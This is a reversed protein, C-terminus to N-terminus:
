RGYVVISGVNFTGVGSTTVRIANLATTTPIVVVDTSVGSIDVVKSRTTNFNKIVAWITRGSTTASGYLPLYTQNTELGGNITLYDGTTTLFTSGNDTSVLLGRTTSNTTGLGRLFVLIENYASLGVFDVVGVGSPTSTAIFTWGAAGGSPTQFTPDLAAGNSTLVQGATGASTVAIAGAGQGILVGHNTLTTLGTGGNPVNIGAVGGVSYGLADVTAYASQARTRVKLVGDTAVDLGIGNTTATINLLGAGGGRTLKTDLGTTTGGGHTTTSDWGITLGSGMGFITSSSTSWGGGIIVLTAALSPCTLYNSDMTVPYVAAAGNRSFGFRLAGSPTAASVPLSDIWWDDTNTAATATTNWVNSRFRLRPSMQVPVGATAPTANQLVLGDTSVAAVGDAGSWLAANGTHASNRVKLVGDTNVDVGVGATIATNSLVLQGDAPSTFAIKSTIRFATASITSSAVMTGTSTISGSSSIAGATLAADASQARTRLKLTGDTSLDFGVGATIASNTLNMQNAAPSYLYWRGLVLFGFSTPAVVDGGTATLSLATLAADASQARTRIKLIGDTAVDLGVGTTTARITVNLQGDAPSSLLTRTNWFLANSTGIQTNITFLDGTITLNGASSLTLPFTVAGGNLSQGIKLLGAPTAGTTPLSEIMWDNVNDAPTTTNWVHSRFRLRPSQQVPVGATAPTTNQLVLGDTSTAAIADKQITGLIAALSAITGLTTINASGAWTSLATNEVLSLGVDAKTIAAIGYGALTTPKATLDAFAHTHVAPAFTAAALYAAGTASAASRVLLDGDIGGTFLRAANWASPQLKTADPGDLYPSVFAPKLIVDAM